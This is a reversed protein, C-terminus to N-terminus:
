YWMTGGTVGSYWNSVLRYWDTGVQVLTLSFTGGIRRVLRVAWEAHGNWLSICVAGVKANNKEELHPHLHPPPHNKTLHHCSGFLIGKRPTSNLLEPRLYDSTASDSSDLAWSVM